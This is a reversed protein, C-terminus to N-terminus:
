DQHSGPDACLRDLITGLNMQSIYMISGFDIRCRDLVLRMAIGYLDMISSGPNMECDILGFCNEHVACLVDSDQLAFYWRNQIIEFSLKENKKARLIDM